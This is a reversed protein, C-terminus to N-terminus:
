PLPVEDLGEILWLNQSSRDVSFTLGHRDPTPSLLLGPSLGARPVDAVPVRGISQVIKGDFDLALLVHDDSFPNTGRICYLLEETAAFACPAPEIGLDRTTKDAISLLTMTGAPVLVWRGNPSWIPALENQPLGELLTEPVARGTTKVRKLARSGGVRVFYSYWAGDPSWSGAAEHIEENTVREPAGGAVASMWLRTGDPRAADVRSYILRSGDPSLTPAILYLTEASFDRATVVPRDPQPPQHLWIQWEGARDTVYVLSSAASAWAPLFEMRDTTILPAVKATDLDLTVIDYDRKDVSVFMKRGDPSVVPISPGGLPTALPRFKGSQTDALYLKRELDNTAVVVHRNDPLWSFDVSAGGFPLGELVRRPPHGADPPFPMLWAENGRDAAFWILLLHKGDPSYRLFPLNHYTRATFPAPEYREFMAGPPTATFVGVSGDAGRAVAAFSSGDRTVHATRIPIEIGLTPYDLPVALEPLAGVPSVSWLGDREFFLIRGTSTWQTIAPFLETRRALPRAAPENLARIDLEAPRESTGIMSFAASQGDPSWVPSWQRGKTVEWPRVRLSPEPAPLFGFVVLGIGIVVLSAALAAAAPHRRVISRKASSKSATDPAADAKAVIPVADQATSRPSTADRRLAVDAVFRYGRGPKTVIFRHEGPKEGLVRRLESVTKNLNHEEVVVNPWIAALLAEKDLLQGPREVFFLLADFLRPTLPIAHEDEAFLVRRQADLRFGEFEYVPHRVPESL